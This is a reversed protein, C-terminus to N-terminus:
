LISRGFFTLLPTDRIGDAVWLDGLLTRAKLKILVHYQCSQRQWSLQRRSARKRLSSLSKYGRLMPFHHVTEYCSDRCPVDDAAACCTPTPYRNLKLPRTM